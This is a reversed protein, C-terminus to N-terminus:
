LITKTNGFLYFDLRDKESKIKNKIEGEPLSFLRNRLVTRYNILYNLDSDSKKRKFKYTSFQEM